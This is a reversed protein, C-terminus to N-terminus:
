PRRRFTVNMAATAFVSYEPGNVRSYSRRIARGAIVNVSPVWLVNEGDKQVGFGNVLGIFNGPNEGNPSNGTTLILGPNWLLRSMGDASVRDVRAYLRHESWGIAPIGIRGGIGFPTRGGALQAYAEFYPYFGTIGFGIATGKGRVSDRSGYAWAVETGPVHTACADACDYSWFWGAEDGTRTSGSAQLTVSSGRNVEASRVTSFTTCASAVTTLALACLMRTEMFGEDPKM